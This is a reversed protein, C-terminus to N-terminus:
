ASKPTAPCNVLVVELLFVNTPVGNQYHIGRERVKQLQGLQCEKREREKERERRGLIAGSTIFCDIYSELASIQLKPIVAISSAFPSGGFESSCGIRTSKRIGL